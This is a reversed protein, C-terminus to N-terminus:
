VDETELEASQEYDPKFGRKAALAKARLYAGYRGTEAAHLTAYGTGVPLGIQREVEFPNQKEKETLTDSYAAYKEANEWTTEWQEPSEATAPVKYGDGFANLPNKERNLKTDPLRQAVPVNPVPVIIPTQSSTVVQNVDRYILFGLYANFSQGMERARRKGTLYTNNALQITTKVRDQPTPLDPRLPATPRTAAPSASPRALPQLSSSRNKKKLKM